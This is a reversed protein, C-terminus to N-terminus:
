QDFKLKGQSTPYNIMLGDFIDHEKPRINATQGGDQFIATM